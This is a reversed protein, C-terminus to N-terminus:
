RWGPRQDRRERRGRLLDDDDGGNITDAGGGGQILNAASNGTLTDDGEGGVLNEFNDIGDGTGDDANGNGNTAGLVVTVPGSSGRDMYGLVDIGTIGDLTDAGLGGQIFNDDSNGLIVDNEPSGIVDEISTLDDRANEAGDDANGDNDVGDALMVAVGTAREEYSVIDADAGGSIM